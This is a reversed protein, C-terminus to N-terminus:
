FLSHLLLSLRNDFWHHDAAALGFAGSCILLLKFSTEMTM